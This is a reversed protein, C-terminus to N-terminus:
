ATNPITNDQMVPVDTHDVIGQSSDSATNVSLVVWNCTYDLKREDTNITM